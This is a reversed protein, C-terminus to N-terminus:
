FFAWYGSGLYGYGPVARFSSLAPVESRTTVAWAAVFFFAVAFVALSAFSVSGLAKSMAANTAAQVPILAGVVLALAALFAFTMSPM